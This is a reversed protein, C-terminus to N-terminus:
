VGVFDHMAEVFLGGDTLPETMEDLAQDFREGDFCATAERLAETFAETNGCPREPKEHFPNHVHEEEDQYSAPIREFLM